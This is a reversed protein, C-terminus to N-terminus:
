KGGGAAIAARADFLFYSEELRALTTEDAEIRAVLGALATLLQDNWAKLDEDAKDKISTMNLPQRKMM